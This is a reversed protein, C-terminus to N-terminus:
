DENSAEYIKIPFAFWARNTIDSDFRPDIYATQYVEYIEKEVCFFRYEHHKKALEIAKEKCSQSM